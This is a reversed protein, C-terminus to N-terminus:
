VNDNKRSFVCMFHHSQEGDILISPIYDYSDLNLWKQQANQWGKFFDGDSITCVLKGDDTLSDRVMELTEVPLHSPNFAGIVTICEYKRPLPNEMMDHEFLDRYNTAEFRQLMNPNLDYGDIIYDHNRLGLGIQGNGCAVDAIETGLSINDRIWNSTWLIPGEFWGVKKMWSNYDLGIHFIKGDYLESQSKGYLEDVKSDYGLVGKMSKIREM